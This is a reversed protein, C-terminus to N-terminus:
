RRGLRAEAAAVSRATALRDQGLDLEALTAAVGPRLGVLVAPVGAVESARILDTLARYDRSDLLEVASADVIVGGVARRALAGLLEGTLARLQGHDVDAELPVILNGGSVHM